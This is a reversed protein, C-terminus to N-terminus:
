RRFRASVRRGGSAATGVLLDGDFLAVRERAGRLGNGEVPQPDQPGLHRLADGDDEVVVEVGSPGVQVDVRVRTARAHRVVNTVLEQAVRHVNLALDEDLDDAPGYVHLQAALGSRRAAEVVDELEAIGPQSSRPAPGGGDIDTDRLLGLMRRLDTLAARAGTAIADLAVGRRAEDVLAAEAQVAIMSVHHATIDHLERAIRLREAEVARAREAARDREAREARERLLRTTARQAAWARGATWAAAVGLVPTLVDNLDTESPDVLWATCALLLSLGGIWWATGASTLAAASCIAALGGLYLPPDPWRAMGYAATAAVAVIWTGVPLVRRVVLVVTSAVLLSVGLFPVPDEPTDVVVVM